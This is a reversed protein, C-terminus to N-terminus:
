RSNVSAPSKSRFCHTKIRTFDKSTSTSSANWGCRLGMSSVVTSVRANVLPSACVGYSFFKGAVYVDYGSLMDRDVSPALNSELESLKDERSAALSASCHEVKVKSQRGLQRRVRSAVPGHGRAHNAHLHGQSTGSAEAHSSLVRHNLPKEHTCAMAPERDHDGHTQNLRLRNAFSTVYSDSPYFTTPSWVTDQFRAVTPRRLLSCTSSNRLGSADHKSGLCIMLNETDTAYPKCLLSGVQTRKTIASSPLLTVTANPSLVPNDESINLQMPLSVYGQGLFSHNSNVGTFLLVTTRTASAESSRDCIKWVLGCGLEIGLESANPLQLLKANPSMSIADEVSWLNSRYNCLAKSQRFTNLSTMASKSVKNTAQQTLALAPTTLALLLPDDGSVAVTDGFQVLLNHLVMYGVIVQVVRTPTKQQVKGLLIRFRNNLIGFACEVIIRTRSHLKNYLRKKRSTLAALEDYPTLLHRYVKYGADGLLHKGAPITAQRRIGSTNWLSQDNQLGWVFRSRPSCGDVAGIVDPFGCIDEVGRSVDNIEEQTSPMTVCEKAMDNLTSLVLHYLTKPIGLLAAAQDMTGTGALYAMTLAVRAMIGQTTNHHLPFSWRQTVIDVIKMFSKRDCRLKAKFWLTHRQALVRKLVNTRFTNIHRRQASGIRRRDGALVYLAACVCHSTCLLAVTRGKTMTSHSRAPVIKDAAGESVAMETTTFQGICSVRTVFRTGVVTHYQTLGNFNFNFFAELWLASGDLVRCEQKNVLVTPLVCVGFAFFKGCLYTDYGSKSLETASVPADQATKTIEDWKTKLKTELMRGAYFRFGIFCATVGGMTLHFHWIFTTMDETVVDAKMGVSVLTTTTVRMVLMQTLILVVAERVTICYAVQRFGYRLSLLAKAGLLCPVTFPRLVVGLAVFLKFHSTLGSLNIMISSLETGSPYTLVAFAVNLLVSLPTETIFHFFTRIGVVSCRTYLVCVLALVMLVTRVENPLTNTEIIYMTSTQPEYIGNSPVAVLQSFPISANNPWEAMAVLMTQTFIVKRPAILKLTHHYFATTYRSKMSAHWRLNEITIAMPKISDCEIVWDGFTTSNAFSTVYSDSPYFTTPSWVADQFRAVTPRRLLSCRSSSQLDSAAVGQAWADTSMRLNFSVLKEPDTSYLKYLLSGMQTRKSIASRPLLVATTNTSLVPNDDSINLQTQLTVYDQLFLSTNINVGTFLVSAQINVTSQVIDWWDHAYDIGGLQSRVNELRTWLGRTEGSFTKYRRNEIATVYKSFTSRETPFKPALTLKYQLVQDESLSTFGIPPAAADLKDMASLTDHLVEGATDQKTDLAASIRQNLLTTIELVILGLITLTSLAGFIQGRKLSGGAVEAVMRAGRPFVSSDTPGVPMVHAATAADQRKTRSASRMSHNDPCLVCTRRLHLRVEAASAPPHLVADLHLPRPLIAFS